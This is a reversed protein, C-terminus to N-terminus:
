QVDNTVFSVLVKEAWDWKRFGLKYNTVFSTTLKNEIFKPLLENVVKKWANEDFLTNEVYKNIERKSTASDTLASLRVLRSFFSDTFSKLAKSKKSTTTVNWSIVLSTLMNRLVTRSKQIWTNLELVRKHKHRM